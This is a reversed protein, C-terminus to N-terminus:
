PTPMSLLILHPITCIQGIPAKHWCVILGIGMSELDTGKANPSLAILIATSHSYDGEAM